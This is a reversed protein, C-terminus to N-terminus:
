NQARAVPTLSLLPFTPRVNYVHGLNCWRLEKVLERASKGRLKVSPEDGKWEAVRSKIADFGEKDAPPNNILERTTPRPSDKDQDQDADADADVILGQLEAISPIRQTSRTAYLHFLSPSPRHYHTDLNTPNPPLTFTSLSERLLSLQQDVDLYRPLLIIGPHTPTNPQTQPPTLSRRPFRNTFFFFPDREGDALL